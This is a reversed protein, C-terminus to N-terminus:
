QLQIRYFRPLSNPPTNTLLNLPPTAPINNTIESWPTTVLNTSQFLRYTRNSASEWSLTINSGSPTIATFELRSSSDNPNSGAQSEAWDSVGDNDSDTDNIATGYLYLEEWDSLGDGDTDLSEYAGLDVTGNSIRPAGVLDTAENAITNTSPGLGDIDANNNGINRAPSLGQLRFNGGANANTSPTLPVVFLASLDINNGGDTGTLPNWAGSGGSNGVLCNAFVLNTGAANSITASLTFTSSAARNSWLISNVILGQSTPSIMIAGGAGAANNGSLTCNVWDARGDSCSAAGGDSSATNGSVLCNLLRLAAAGGQMLMGGGNGACTNGSIVTRVIALIASQTFFGGGQSSGSNGVILCDTIRITGAGAAFGGGRTAANARFICNTIETNAEINAGGGTYDARNGTVTCQRLTMPGTIFLGAGNNTFISAGNARGATITFGDLTPPTTITGPCTVVHWANSAVFNGAASNTIVGFNNTVDNADLDGSLVTLNAAPNRAARTTETGAFGGYIGLNNMLTFSSNRNNNTVSALGASARDPFYTGAAVWIEDNTSASALADQLDKFANAWSTGNNAGTANHRVYLTTPSFSTKFNDLGLVQGPTFTQYAIRLGMQAVAAADNTFNNGTFNLDFWNSSAFTTTYSQWNTTAFGFDHIWNAGNATFYLMLNPPSAGGNFDFRVTATVPQGGNAFFNGVFAASANTGTAYLLDTQPFPIFSTDATVQLASAPNGFAPPCSLAGVPAGGSDKTLTWGRLDGSTTWTEQTALIAHTPLPALTLATTAM